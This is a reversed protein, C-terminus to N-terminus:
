MLAIIVSTQFKSLVNEIESDIITSKELTQANEAIERTSGKSSEHSSDTASKLTLACWGQISAGQPDPADEIESSQLKRTVDLLYIEM